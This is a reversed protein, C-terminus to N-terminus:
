CSFFQSFVAPSSVVRMLISVISLAFLRVRRWIWSAVRSVDRRLSRKRRKLWQDKGMEITHRQVNDVAATLASIVQAAKAKAAEDAEKRTLSELRERLAERWKRKEPDRAGFSPPISHFVARIECLDLGVTVYKHQLDASHISEIDAPHMRILM